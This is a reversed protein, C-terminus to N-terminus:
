EKWRNGCNICTIFTTMPEDSSRTQLQFYTCERKHCKGCEWLDTTILRQENEAKIENLRKDRIKQWKEPYLEQDNMNVLQNRSIEGNLVKPLLYDNRIPSNPDLNEILNYAYSLYRRKFKINPFDLQVLNKVHLYVERECENGLEENNLLKVFIETIRQRNDNNSENSENTSENNVDESIKLDEIKVFEEKKVINLCLKKRSSM